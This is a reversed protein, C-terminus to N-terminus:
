PAVPTHTPIMGTMDIWGRAVLVESVRINLLANSVYSIVPPMSASHTARDVSEEVWGPASVHEFMYRVCYMVSGRLDIAQVSAGQYKLTYQAFEEDNTVSGNQTIISSMKIAANNVCGVYPDLAAQPSSPLVTDLTLVRTPVEWSYSRASLEGRTQWNTIQGAPRGYADRLDPSRYYRFHRLGNRSDMLVHAPLSPVSVASRQYRVVVAAKKGGFKASRVSHVPLTGDAPHTSGIDSLVLDIAADNDGVTGALDDVTFGRVASGADVGAVGRTLSSGHRWMDRSTITPPM